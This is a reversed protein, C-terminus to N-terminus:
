KKEWHSFKTGESNTTFIAEYDKPIEGIEIQDFDPCIAVYEVMNNWYLVEARVIILRSNLQMVAEHNDEMFYKDLHFRGIHKFLDQNSM